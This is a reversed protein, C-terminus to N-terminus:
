GERDNKRGEFGGKGKRERWGEKKRTEWQWRGIM